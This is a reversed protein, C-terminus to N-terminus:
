ITGTRMSWMHETRQLVSCELGIPGLLTRKLFCMYNVQYKETVENIDTHIWSWTELLNRSTKWDLQQAKWKQRRIDQQTHKHAEEWCHVCLLPLIILTSVFMRKRKRTHAYMDPEMGWQLVRQNISVAAWSEATRAAPKQNFVLHCWGEGQGLWKSIVQSPNWFNEHQYPKRFSPQFLDKHFPPTEIKAAYQTASFHWLWVFCCSWVTCTLPTTNWINWIKGSFTLSDQHTVMVRPTGCPKTKPCNDNM